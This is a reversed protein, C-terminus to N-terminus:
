RGSMSSLTIRGDGEQKGLHGNELFIGWSFETHMQKDERVQSCAWAM